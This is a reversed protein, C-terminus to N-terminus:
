ENYLKEQRARYRKGAASEAYRADAIAESARGGLLATTLAAGKKTSGTVKLKHYGLTGRGLLLAHAIKKGRSRSAMMKEAKKTVHRSMNAKIESNVSSKYMARGAATKQMRAKNDRFPDGTASKAVRKAYTKKSTYYKRKFEKKGLKNYDNKVQRTLTSDNKGVVMKGNVDHVGSTRRGTRPRDHRVGWKMGPVGYHELYEDNDESFIPKLEM